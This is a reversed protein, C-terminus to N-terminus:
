LNWSETVGALTGATKLCGPRRDLWFGQQKYFSRRFVGAHWLCGRRMVEKVSGVLVLEQSVAGVAAGSKGHGKGLAAGVAASAFIGCRPAARRLGAEGLSRASGVLSIRKELFGRPRGPLELETHNGVAVGFEKWLTCGEGRRAKAGPQPEWVGTSRM